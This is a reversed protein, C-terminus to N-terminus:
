NGYLKDFYENIFQEIDDPTEGNLIQSLTKKYYAEIVDAYPVLTDTEPDYITGAGGYNVDGTGAGGDGKTEEDDGEDYDGNPDDQNPKSPRASEPLEAYSISFIRMLETVVMDATEKNEAQQMLANATERAGENFAEDLAVQLEEETGSSEYVIKIDDAFATVAIVLVDEEDAGTLAAARLAAELLNVNAFGEGLYNDRVTTIEQRLALGDLREFAAALLKIDEDDSAKLATAIDDYTDAQKEIQIVDEISAIVKPKVVSQVLTQEIQQLLGSLETVVAQKPEEEMDSVKVKEILEKLEMIDLYGDYPQDADVDIERVPVFVATLAFAVALAPMLINKWVRTTRVAKLPAKKLREDTDKRQLLVMESDQGQFEIMTQTKEHLRLETDITKAIKKDRPKFLLYAGAGFLLAAGLGVLACLLVNPQVGTMKQIFAVVAGVLVGSSLAVLGSKIIASAQFKRKFKLFGETM